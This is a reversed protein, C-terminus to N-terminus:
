NAGSHSKKQLPKRQRPAPQDGGASLSRGSSFFSRFGPRKREVNSELGYMEIKPAVRILSDKSSSSKVFTQGTQGLTGIAPSNAESQQFVKEAPQNAPQSSWRSATVAPKTIAGSPPIGPAEEGVRLHVSDDVPEIEPYATQARASTFPITILAGLLTM